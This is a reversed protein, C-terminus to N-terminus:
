ENLNLFLHKYRKHNSFYIYDSQTDIDRIKPLCTYTWDKSIIRDITQQLVKETSWAINKFLSHDLKRLGILAYGGDLTPGLAVDNGKTLEQFANEVYATDLELCDSGILVTNTNNQVCANFANYMRMGIDDGTQSYLKLNYKNKLFGFFPHETDPHCYLKVEFEEDCVNKLTHELIIKYIESSQLDGVHKSLRSMVFGPDPYKCFCIVNKSEM